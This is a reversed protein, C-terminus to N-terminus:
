GPVLRVFTGVVLGVAAAVLRLVAYVCRGLLRIVAFGMAQWLVGFLLLPLLWELCFFGLGLLICEWHPAEAQTPECNGQGIADDRVGDVYPPIPNYSLSLADCLPWAMDYLWQVPWIFRLSPCVYPSVNYRVLADYIKGASNLRACTPPVEALWAEVATTNILPIATFYCVPCVADDVYEEFSKQEVAAVVGEVADIVLAGMFITKGVVWNLYIIALNLTAAIGSFNGALENVSLIFNYRWLCLLLGLVSLYIIAWLSEILGTVINSLSFLVILLDELLGDLLDETVRRAARLAGAVAYKIPNGKPPM